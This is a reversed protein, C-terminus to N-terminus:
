ATTTKWCGGLGMFDILFNELEEMTSFRIYTNGM